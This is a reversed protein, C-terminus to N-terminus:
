LGVVILPLDSGAVAAAAAMSAFVAMFFAIYAAWRRAPSRPPDIDAPKRDRMGEHSDHHTVEVDGAQSFAWFNRAEGDAHAAHNPSHMATTTMTHEM